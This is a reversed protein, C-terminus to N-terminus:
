WWALCLALPFHILLIECGTPQQDDAWMCKRHSNPLHIIKLPAHVSRGCICKETYVCYLRKQFFLLMILDQLLYQFTLQNRMCVIPASYPQLAFVLWGCSKITICGLSVGPEISLSSVRNPKLYICYNGMNVTRKRRPSLQDRVQLPHLYSPWRPGPPLADGAADGPHPPHLRAGWPWALEYLAAPASYPNVPPCPLACM